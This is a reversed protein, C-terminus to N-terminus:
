CFHQQNSFLLYLVAPATQGNCGPHPRAGSKATPTGISHSVRRVSSQYLSRLYSETKKGEPFVQIAQTLMERAESFAAPDGQSARQMASVLHWIFAYYPPQNPGNTVKSLHDKVSNTDGLFADDLALWLHHLQRASSDEEKDPRELARLSLAAAETGRGTERLATVRNLLDTPSVNRRSEWDATWAAAATPDSISILAYGM